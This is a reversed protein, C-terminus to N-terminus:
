AFFEKIDPGFENAKELRAVYTYGPIVLIPQRWKGYADTMTIGVPSDLKGVDYDSKYYLRVQANEIPSGGPSQYIMDGALPYDQDIKKTNTFVPPTEVAAGGLSLDLLDWPIVDYVNGDLTTVQVQYFYLQIALAVTDNPLFTLNLVAQHVAFALNSPTSTTDYALVNVLDTPQNRLLFTATAGKLKHHSLPQGNEDVLDIALAKTTGQILNIRNSM